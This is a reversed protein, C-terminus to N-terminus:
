LLLKSKIYDGIKNIAEQGEPAWSAFAQFVHIM